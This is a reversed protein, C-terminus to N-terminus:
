QRDGRRRFEGHGRLLPRRRTGRCRGPASRPRLLVGVALRPRRGAAAEAGVAAPPEARRSASRPGRMSGREAYRDGILRQRVHFAHLHGPVVADGPSQSFIQQSTTADTVSLAAATSAAISTDYSSAEGASVDTLTPVSDVALSIPDTLGSMAHVLRLSADGSPRCAISISWGTRRRRRGNGSLHAVHLGPGRGLGPRTLFRSRRQRESVGHGNRRTGDSVHRDFEGGCQHRPRDIRRNRFGHIRQGIWEGGSGTRGSEAPPSRARSRCSTPM